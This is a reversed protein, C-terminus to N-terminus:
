KEREAIISELEKSVDLFIYEDATNRYYDSSAMVQLTAAMGKLRLIVDCTEQKM